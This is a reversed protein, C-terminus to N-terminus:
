GRIMERRTMVVIYSDLAAHQREALAYLQRMAAIPSSPTHASEGAPATPPASSRPTSVPVEARHEVPVPDAPVGPTPADQNRERQATASPRPRTETPPQRRPLGVCGFFAMGLGLGLFLRTMKRGGMM